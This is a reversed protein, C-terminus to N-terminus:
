QAAAEVQVSQFAESLRGSAPDRLRVKFTYDGPAVDNPTVNLVFRRFGDNEAVSRELELRGMGVPAGSGDLLQAKIEFSAGPDYRVGGDFAMLCVSQRQGNQLKPRTRPTFAADAVHFPSELAVTSRSPAELIVWHQPDDMFLPPYLTVGNTEFPPVTVEMWYAGSRGTQADRILFRLGHKGPPLAFAAHCQLGRGRLRDGLKALDLNSVLGIMDEVGGQPDLAYGYIELGLKADPRALLSSGDIELVVPLTVQGAATRYPVALARLGIEGGTVGKAIIEAAEFRKTLATKEVYPQREFYGSRHSVKMGKGKVRVKLKHFQGPARSVQPEFALLYYHRSMETVESLAKSVDNTDKFLRGGTLNAIRSLSEQGGRIRVDRDTGQMRLDGRASLGSLDVAHVVADSASFARLVQEMEIRIGSDGFRADSQVEWLRGTVIAESDAMAQAGTSGVLPTEDFGASLFIVQKRGQVADLSKALQGMGEILALIRQRYNQQESTQYRLQIARAAAAFANASGVSDPVQADTLALSADQLDYVLGLADTRRDTQTVGLHDVARRLQIHDSTFALLLSVGRMASFTAVAALDSARLDKDIFERAAQRARVLGAVSTFSMDFLLLFQRRAAPSEGVHALVAPDGVDIEHFGAIRMPKGDDSIEFDDAQLDSVSHGGDDTVFVPLTVVAIESPFQPPAESPNQGRAGAPGLLSQAVLLALGKKLRSM